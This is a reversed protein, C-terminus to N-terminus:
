EMRKPREHGRWLDAPIDPFLEAKKDVVYLWRGDTERIFTGYCCSVVSESPILVQTRQMVGDARVMWCLQGERM